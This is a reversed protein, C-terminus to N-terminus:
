YFSAASPLHARPPPTTPPYANNRFSVIFAFALREKVYIMLDTEIAAATAAASANLNRYRMGTV